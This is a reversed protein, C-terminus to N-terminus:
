GEPFMVVEDGEQWPEFKTMAQLFVPHELWDQLWQQLKPYPLSYFTQRDVHAFQRVFPMIGIDAISVKDSLLYPRDTLLDELKQLFVEGNLRYERQSMGPHRDAYKYRDLWHKFDGDNQDLLGAALSLDVDLLGAPDHQALAWELIERSEEIVHGDPLELVPVTGKPSIALMPAPKSKLIIERLEVPCGAFLLGLRARMAYPCRRFSYLRPLIRM